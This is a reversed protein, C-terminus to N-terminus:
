VSGTLFYAVYKLGLVCVGVLISGVALKRVRNM